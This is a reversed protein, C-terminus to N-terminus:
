EQKENEAPPPPTPPLDIFDLKSRQQALYVRISPLLFAMTILLHFVILATIPWWNPFWKTWFLHKDEPILASYLEWLKGAYNGTTIIGWLIVLWYILMDSTYLLFAVVAIHTLPLVVSTWNFKALQYNSLAWGAMFLRELVLLAVAMYLIVKGRDASSKM